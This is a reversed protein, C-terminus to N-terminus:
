KARRPAIRRKPRVFLASVAILAMSVATMVGMNILTFTRFSLARLVDYYYYSNRLSYFTNNLLGTQDMLMTLLGLGPNCYLLPPILRALQWPGMASLKLQTGDGTLEMLKVGADSFLPLLTGIGIAFVFLYAAVTATVTKRFVASCFLGIAAATFACCLLFAFSFFALKIGLGGVALVACTMPLGSLVILALFAFSELLKGWVIRGSGTNTVLLLELTQREREGSISGATMAPAVMVILFFQLVTLIIYQEVNGRMDTIALQPKSMSLTSVAAFILPFVAYLTLILPTRVTRVRRRASSALIPNFM